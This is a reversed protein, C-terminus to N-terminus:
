IINGAPIRMVFRAGVPADACTLDGGHARAVARAIPLGLGARGAGDARVSREFIRERDEPAVGPGDDTVEVLVQGGERRAALRVRGALRRANDALNTLVRSLQEADGLVVAPGTVAATVDGGLLRQAAAVEGVLAAVDVPRRRLEQAADAGDLRAMLLLDDVLRGARRAERVMAVLRREREARDPDDRLLSEAAASLSAVPTRLDHSADALFGRMRGESHELADLMGDFALATRGLDTGPRAPRLRGGRDGAAIRRALATMRDLPALAGAVVRTLLLGVVLVTGAGALLEVTRLQALTRSIEVDGASLTLTGTSLPLDVSLAGAAEVVEVGAPPEPRPRMRGPGPGAPPFRDPRYRGYVEAGGDRVVATIGQGTLRDALEQEALGQRVLLQAFGARETLRDRLDAHLRAALIANVLLGLGVLVATLLVLVAVVVRLRLSPTRTV